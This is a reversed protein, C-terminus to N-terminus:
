YAKLTQIMGGNNTEDIEDLWGSIVWGNNITLKFNLMLGGICIMNILNCRLSTSQRQSIHQSLLELM